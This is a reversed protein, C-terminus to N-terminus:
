HDVTLDGRQALTGSAAETRQVCGRDWFVLAIAAQEIEPALQEEVFTERCISLDRAAATV